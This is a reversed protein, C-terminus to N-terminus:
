VILLHSRAVSVRINGYMFTPILLMKAASYCFAASAAIRTGCKENDKGRKAAHIRKASVNTTFNLIKKNFM